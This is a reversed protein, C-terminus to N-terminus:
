GGLGAAVQCRIQPIAHRWARLRGDADWAVQRVQKSRCFRRSSRYLSSLNFSLVDLSATAARIDCSPLGKDSSCTFDQTSLKLVDKVFCFPLSGSALSWSYSLILSYVYPLPSSYLIIQSRQLLNFFFSNLSASLIDCCQITGFDCKVCGWEWDM